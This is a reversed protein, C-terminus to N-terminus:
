NMMANDIDAELKRKTKLFEQGLKTLLEENMCKRVASFIESEEEKVHHQVAKKLENMKQKFQPETPKMQQMQELLANAEEHEKEAEQIYKKTEQHERMAPYFIIEETKIHLNLAKYIQNFCNYVATNSAKEIAAFLQEFQRHEAEILSLINKTKAQTM